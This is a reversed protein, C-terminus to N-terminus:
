RAITVTCPARAALDAAVSGLLLRSLGRKDGTGVVIHDIDNKMAYEIMGSSAERDTLVVANAVAQGQGTVLALADDLIKKAEDDTLAPIHPSRPSRGSIVNVVCVSLEAELRGALEAAAALAVHSHDTGDTGCLIKRIM